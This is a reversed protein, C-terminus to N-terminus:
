PGFEKVLKDRMEKRAYIRVLKKINRQIALANVRAGKRFEPTIAESDLPEM